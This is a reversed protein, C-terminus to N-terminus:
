VLDFHVNVAKKLKDINNEYTLDKQLNNLRKQRACEM